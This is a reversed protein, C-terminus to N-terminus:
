QANGQLLTDRRLFLRILKEDMLGTRAYPTENCRQLLAVLTEPRFAQGCATALESVEAATQMWNIQERLEPEAQIRGLFTFLRELEDGDTPSPFAPSGTETSM